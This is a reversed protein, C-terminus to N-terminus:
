TIDRRMTTRSALLALVGAYAALVLAAAWPPLADAETLGGTMDATLSINMAANLAGGPLWKGVEPLLVGFLGEVLLVWVLALAIAVVQNKIVAGLSVGLVAYLTMGVVAGVLVSAVTGATIPAHERGVLAIATLTVALVVNAVALGAGLVAFLALKAGLVRGRRPTALFTSTITMHRFEGTMAIIGLVLVFTAAAGAEGLVTGIFEPDLLLDGDGSQPMGPLAGSGVLLLTAVNVATFVLSIAALSVLMKTTTVKRWESALLRRPVGTM